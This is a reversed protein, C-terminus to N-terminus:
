RQRHWQVEVAKAVEDVLEDPGSVSLGVFTESVIDLVADRLEVSLSNLEQSGSLSWDSSLSKAGLSKLKEILHVKLEDDFEDGLVITKGM